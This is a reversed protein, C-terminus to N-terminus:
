IQRLNNRYFNLSRKAAEPMVDVANGRNDYLHRVIALIANKARDPVGAANSSLGAIFQVTIKPNNVSLEPPNPIHIRAPWVNLNTYYKDSALTQETDDKDFYKIHTISSVKGKGVRIKYDSPWETLFLNWTTNIFSILAYEEAIDIASTIMSEIVSDQSTSTIRAFSKAEELTIPESAAPTQVQYM